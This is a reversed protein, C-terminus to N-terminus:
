NKCVEFVRFQRPRQRRWLIIILYDKTTEQLLLKENVILGGWDGPRPEANSTITIPNDATGMCFEEGQM